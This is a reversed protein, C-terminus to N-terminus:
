IHILSLVVVKLSPDRLKLSIALYLGGPGAGVIAIREVASRASM